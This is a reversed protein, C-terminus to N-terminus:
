GYARGDVIFSGNPRVPVTVFQVHKGEVYFIAFGMQWNASGTPLYQAQRIDMLHGVELGFITSTKGNVGRTEHQFGLRHTHGCVVSKGAKRALSMATSGGIQSMSGEDGHMLLWGPAFEYPKEHYTIGAAEYGLLNQINLSRLSELAPAYRQVYTQVRDGHNSRSVHYPKGIGLADRFQLHVAATKDLGAQLTGAYEGAYGKNWRSPEPSDTDDGVNVLEDPQYDAIFDCVNNVARVHHYPVQLDSIVM